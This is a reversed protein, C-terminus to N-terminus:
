NRTRCTGARLVYKNRRWFRLTPVVEPQLNTAITSEKQPLEAAHADQDM